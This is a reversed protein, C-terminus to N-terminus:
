KKNKNKKDVLVTNATIKYDITNCIYDEIIEIFDNAIDKCFNEESQADMVKKYLKLYEDKIDHEIIITTVFKM